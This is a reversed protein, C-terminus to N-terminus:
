LTPVRMTRKRFERHRIIDRFSPRRLLASTSPTAAVAGRIHWGHAQLDQQLTGRSITDEFYIALAESLAEFADGEDVGAATIDIEPCYAVYASGDPFAYASLEAQILAEKGM